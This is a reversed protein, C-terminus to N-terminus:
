SLATMQWKALRNWCGVVGLCPVHEPGRVCCRAGVLAQRQVKHFCPTMDCVENTRDRHVAAPLACAEKPMAGGGGVASSISPPGSCVGEGATVGRSGTSLLSDERPLNRVRGKAGVAVSSEPGGLLLACFELTGATLAMLDNKGEESGEIGQQWQQEKIHVIPAAACSRFVRTLLM